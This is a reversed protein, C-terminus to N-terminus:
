AIRAAMQDGLSIGALQSLSWPTHAQEVDFGNKALGFGSQAYLQGGTPDTGCQGQRGGGRNPPAIEDDGFM